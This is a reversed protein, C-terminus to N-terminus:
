IMARWIVTSLWAALVAVIPVALTGRPESLESIRTLGVFLQLIQICLVLLYIIVLVEVNKLGVINALLLGMAQVLSIAGAIFLDGEIRGAGQSTLRALALACVLAVPYIATYPLLTAFNLREIGVNISGSSMSSFVSSM